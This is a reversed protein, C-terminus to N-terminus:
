LVGAIKLFTTIVGAFVVVLLTGLIRKVLINVEGILVKIEIIDKEIHAIDNEKISKVREDIRGLTEIIEPYKDCPERHEM